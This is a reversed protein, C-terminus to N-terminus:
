ADHVEGSGGHEVLSVFVDEMSPAVPRVSPEAIGTSRLLEEVSRTAQEPPGTVVHIGAGFLAADAVGPLQRVQALVAMPRPCEVDLVTEVMASDKLERPSGTAALRGSHIMALRDRNAPDQLDFFLKSLQYDRAM